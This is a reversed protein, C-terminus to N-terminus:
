RQAPLKRHKISDPKNFRSILLFGGYASQLGFFVGVMLLVASLCAIAIPAFRAYFIVNAGRAEGVRVNYAFVERSADDYAQYARAADGELLKKADPLNGNAVLAFFQERREIFDKRTAALKEYGRRDEDSYISNSYDVWLGETSNSRVMEITAVRRQPDAQNLMNQLAFWNNQMRTIATGADMLGPLTDKVILTADKQLSRAAFWTGTVVSVFILGAISGLILLEKRFM